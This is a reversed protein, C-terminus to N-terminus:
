DYLRVINFFADSKLENGFSLSMISIKQFVVIKLDIFLCSILIVMVIIIKMENLYVM